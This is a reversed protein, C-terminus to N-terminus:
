FNFTYFEDCKGCKDNYKQNIHEKLIEDTKHWVEELSNEFVNGVIGSNMYARCPPVDGNVLIQLDRRIHWCPNRELPSLDAPKSQPLLGAFDDYKQIILNGGSSNSKENWYRFFSELEAENENMRVFQPYVAGPIVASLKAVAEVSKEFDGPKSNKHIQAYTQASFADMQVAFMIKQWGNTREETSDIIKKLQNCFDDTVLFGDTEIFVSLGKYSLVKEIMKLCDPNFLAEGWASLSVVAEESFEAIADALKEFKEYPMFMKEKAPVAPLYICNSNNQNSIQVNYFAPVTKLCGLTKTATESLKEADDIKEASEFLAKCQMFNEKKGCHFAFRYLRWDTDALITDVEFANIDSKILNYISERSVKQNGLESQTTKALELLIKLTGCDILEPALGYPFGDAFTYESKYEVHSAIMKKILAENLFPVDDYSFIVFDAEHETCLAIMKELLQCNNEANSITYIGEVTDFKNEFVQATMEVATKGAFIKENKYKSSTANYFIGISKM